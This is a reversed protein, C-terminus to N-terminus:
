VIVKWEEEGLTILSNKAKFFVHSSTINKNILFIYSIIAM